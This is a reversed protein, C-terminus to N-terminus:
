DRLASLVEDAAREGSQVAGEMYGAWETATETGAWHLAGVPERLATGFATWVGPAMYGAYCGRTHEEASWDVEVYDRPAAADPGFLRVFTEVVAARRREAPWAGLERADRGELFGLLVGPAGQPPTNDFVVRAPGEISVAQGSLGDRRWFPEDYIAMCKVVSGHPVRQTLLDRAAPLAPAYAIRGALAPALAVIARRARLPAGGDSEISVGGDAEAPDDHVIRRVPRGLLVRREGEDLLAALRLPLEQSGGFFRDQQAGGRTGVLDDFSGAAHVYFLVHLLSLEQPECAWVAAVSLRLLDRAPRTRVHGDIWSAFTQADWEAARPARWPADVPVRRAMRDIRLQAQAIDALVVPNIRPITGRYRLLSGGRELLSEGEDHTPHTAVGLRQGLALMRRQGPGVWQGGIEVIAGGPLVHNLIRGGVRERAELVRVTRGAAHVREAAILGALGAGVIAVDVRDDAASPAM